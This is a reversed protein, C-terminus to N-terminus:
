GGSGVPPATDRGDSGYPSKFRWSMELWRGVAPKADRHWAFEWRDMAAIVAEAFPPGGDTATILTATVRGGADVFIAVDVRVIPQQRDHESANLPYRPRVMTVIVFDPSTQQPLTLEAQPAAAATAAPEANSVATLPDPEDPEPPVSEEAALQPETPEIDAVQPPLERFAEPLQHLADHGTEISIDPMIQLPGEAGYIEFRRKIEERSPGLWAVLALALLAVAGASLFRLKRKTQFAEETESYYPSGQRPTPAPTDGTSAPTRHPPRDALRRRRRDEERVPAM